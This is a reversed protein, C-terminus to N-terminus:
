CEPFRVIWALGNLVLAIYELDDFAAACRQGDPTLRERSVRHDKDRGPRDHRNSAEFIRGARVM